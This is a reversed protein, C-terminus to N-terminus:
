GCTLPSGMTYKSMVWDLMAKIDVKGSFTNM